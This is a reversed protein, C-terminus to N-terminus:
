RRMRSFVNEGRIMLIWGKVALPILIAACLYEIM